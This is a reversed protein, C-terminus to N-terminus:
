AAEVWSLAAAPQATCVGGVPLPRPAPPAPSGAEYVAIALGRRVVRERFWQLFATHDSAIRAPVRGAQDGFLRDLFWRKVLWSREPRMPRGSGIWKTFTSRDLRLAEAVRRIPVDATDCLFEFEEASLPDPSGCLQNAIALHIRDIEVESLGRQGGPLESLRVEPVIWERGAVHVPHDRVVISKM